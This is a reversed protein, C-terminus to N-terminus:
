DLGLSEVISDSISADSLADAILKQDASSLARRTQGVLPRLSQLEAYKSDKLRGICKFRNRTDTIKSLLEEKSLPEIRKIDLYGTGSIYKRNEWHREEVTITVRSECASLSSTMVFFPYIELETFPRAALKYKKKLVGTSM